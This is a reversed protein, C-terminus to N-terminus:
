PTADAFTPMGTVPSSTPVVVAAAAADETTQTSNGRDTYAVCPLTGFRIDDLNINNKSGRGRIAPSIEIRYFPESSEFGWFTWQNYNGSPLARPSGIEEQYNATRYLRVYATNKIRYLFGVTNIPENFTLVITGRVNNNRKFNRVYTGQQGQQRVIAVPSSGSRPRRTFKVLPAFKNSPIRQMNSLGANELDILDTNGVLASESTLAQDSCHGNNLDQDDIGSATSVPGITPAMTTPSASPEPTPSTTPADTVVSTTSVPSTSPSTTPAETIPSTTPAMTVPSTTPSPTIPSPTPASTTPALTTPNNNNNGSSNNPCAAGNVTVCVEAVSNRNLNHPIKKVEVKIDKGELSTEWSGDQSLKAHLETHTYGTGHAGAEVITVQNQAEVTDANFELALNFMLYYDRDSNLEIKVVKPRNPNNWNQAVVGQLHYRAGGGNHVTFTQAADAHPARLWGLIWYMAGNFCMKRNNNYSYGMVGTNDAYNGNENSHGLNLNHGVEHMQATNYTCWMDNYVSNWGRVVAYALRGTAGPPLCMLVHDAVATPHGIGFNTKLNTTIQSRFSSDGWAVPFNVRVTTVGNTIPTSGTVHAAQLERNDAPVMQIHGNSCEDYQSALTVDHPGKAFVSEYLEQETATTSADDAVVRVVLVRKTGSQYLQRAAPHNDVIPQQHNNNDDNNNSDNNLRRNDNDHNDNNNRLVVEEGENLVIDGADDIMDILPRPLVLNTEGSVLTGDEMWRELQISTIRTGIVDRM